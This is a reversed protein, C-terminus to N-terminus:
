FNHMTDSERRRGGTKQVDATGASENEVPKVGTMVSSGHDQAEIVGIDLAVGVSGDVGDEFTQAPEVEPPVFFVLLGFAEGQVALNGVGYKLLAESVAVESGGVGAVAFFGAGILGPEAVGAHAFKRAGFAVTSGGGSFGKRKAKTNGAAGAFLYTEIVRDVALLNFGVVVDFVEGEQTGVAHGGVVEGGTGVVDVEADAMNDAALIMEGVGVLMHENEFASAGLRWLKRMKRQEDGGIARLEGLAAVTWHDADGGVAVGSEERFGEDI